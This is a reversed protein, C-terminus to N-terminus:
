GALLQRALESDPMSAALDRVHEVTEADTITSAIVMGSARAASLYESVLRDPELGLEPRLRALAFLAVCPGLYRAQGDLSGVPLNALSSQLFLPRDGPELLWVFLLDGLEIRRCWTRMDRLNDDDSQNRLSPHERRWKGIATVFAGARIMELTYSKIERVGNRFGWAPVGLPLVVTPAMTYPDTSWMDSTTFPPEDQEAPYLIGSAPATMSRTMPLAGNLTGGCHPCVAHRQVPWGQASHCSRCVIADCRRCHLAGPGNVLLPVGANMLDSRLKSYGADEHCIDCRAIGVDGEPGRLPRPRTESLKPMPLGPGTSPTAPRRRFAFALVTGCIALGVVWWAVDNM